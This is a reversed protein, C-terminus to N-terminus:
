QNIARLLITYISRIYQYPVVPELMSYDAYCSNQVFQDIIIFLELQDSASTKKKNESKFESSTSAIIGAYCHRILGMIKSHYDYEKDTLLTAGICVDSVLTLLHSNDSFANFQVIYKSRDWYNSNMIGALLLSFFQNKFVPIFKSSSIRTQLVDDYQPTIGKAMFKYQPDLKATISSSDYGIAERILQRFKLVSAAHCYLQMVEEVNQLELIPITNETTPLLPQCKAALKDLIDKVTDAAIIDILVIGKIGILKYLYKLYTLTVPTIASSSTDAVPQSRNKSSSPGTSATLSASFQPSFPKDLFASANSLPIFAKHVPSYVTSTIQETLYKQFFSQYQKVIIGIQGSGPSVLKDSIKVDAEFLKGICEKIYLQPNLSASAFTINMITKSNEVYREMLDPTTGKLKEFITPFFNKLGNIVQDQLNHKTGHVTITGIEHILNLTKMILNITKSINKIHHRKELTSEIGYPIEILSQSNKENKEAAANKPSVTDSKTKPKATPLRKRDSSKSKGSNKLDSQISFNEQDILENLYRFYNSEWKIIINIISSITTGVFRDMNMKTFQSECVSDIDLSFYHAIGLLCPLCYANHHEYQDLMASFSNKTYAWYKQLPASELICQSPSIASKVHFYNLSILNFLPSLHLIGHDSSYENFKTMLKNIAGLLGSIDYKTGKDYKEIDVSKNAAILKLLLEYQVQPIQFSRIMSELFPGDFERLNYLTFRRVVGQVRISYTTLQFLANLLTIFESDYVKQQSPNFNCYSLTSKIEFNAYGLLSLVIPFKEAILGSDGKGANLCENICLTLRRRRINRNKINHSSLAQDFGSTDINESGLKHVKKLAEFYEKLSVVYDGQLELIPYQSSILKFLDHLSQDESIQKINLLSYSLFWEIINSMDMMVLYGYRFFTARQQEAEYLVKPNSSISITSWNTGSASGLLRMISTSLSKFMPYISDVLNRLEGVVSKLVSALQAPGNESYNACAKIIPIERQAVKQYAYEYLTHVKHIGNISNAFITVKIYNSLLNMIPKVFVYNWSLDFTRTTKTVEILTKIASAQFVAVHHLVHIPYRLFQGLSKLKDKSITPFNKNDQAVNHKLAKYLASYNELNETSGIESSRNLITNVNYLAAYLRQAQANLGNITEIDITSM